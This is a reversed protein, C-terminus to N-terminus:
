EWANFDLQVVRTVLVVGVRRKSTLMLFGNDLIRGKELHDWTGDLIICALFVMPMPKNIYNTGLRYPKVKYINEKM